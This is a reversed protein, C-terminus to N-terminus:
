SSNLEQTPNTNADEVIGSEREEAAARDTELNKPTMSVCAISSQLKKEISHSPSFSITIVSCKELGKFLSGQLSLSFSPPFHLMLEKSVV